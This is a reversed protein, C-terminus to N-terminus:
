ESKLAKGEPSCPKLNILCDVYNRVLRKNDLISDLDLYDYRADYKPMNKMDNIDQSLVLCPLLCLVLLRRHARSRAEVPITRSHPRPSTPANYAARHLVRRPLRPAAKEQICGHM